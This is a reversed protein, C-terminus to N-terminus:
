KPFEVNLSDLLLKALRENEANVEEDSLTRDISQYILKFTLSKKGKGIKEGRYLDVLKIEKVLKTSHKLLFTIIEKYSMKEDVIVTIDRDTWPYRSFNYYQIQVNEYIKKIIELDLEAFYIDRKLDWFKYIDPHLRGFYGIEKESLLIIASEIPHLYKYINQDIPKVDLNTKCIRKLLKEFFGKVVYFDFEEEKGYWEKIRHLGSFTVGIAKKEIYKEENEVAKFYNKGIEFIIFDYNMRLHNLEAVALHSPLFTPRMLTKEETLPNKLYVFSEKELIDYKVKELDKERIFSYTIVENAGFDVFADVLLTYFRKELLDERSRMPIVPLATGIDEYFGMRAVEEFIDEELSVDNRYTPVKIDWEYRKKTIQFGLGSLRKEIMEHSIYVGLFSKCRDPRFKIIVEKPIQPYVDYVGSLSKGEAYKEMMLGAIECAVPVNSIDVGRAFRYSAESNLGLSRATKRVTTPNFFASELLINKTKENVESNEGGMVGALAIVRETDAIVLDTDNLIREKGDLTTMREQNKARRVIIKRGSILDYDFAHLPQGYGIMVYNTIDVINNIPRMGCLAIRAKIFDPSPKIKINKILKATYRPCLNVDEIEIQFEEVSNILDPMKKLIKKLPKNFIASLERAIGLHSLCDGRNPTINVEFLIDDLDKYAEEYISNGLKLNDDLVIIGESHISLGLEKESCLMGYSDVGKINMKEIKNGYLEASPLAIVVNKNKSVNPAGCVVQLEENGTSVKCVKLKESSPHNKVELVRGVIINKFLEKTYILGEVELGVMTLKEAILSPEENLDLFDCLWKYLVKM